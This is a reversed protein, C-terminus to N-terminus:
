EMLPVPINLWNLMEVYKEEFGGPTSGKKGRIGFRMDPGPAGVYDLVGIETGSNYFVNCKDGFRFCVGHTIKAVAESDVKRLYPVRRGSSGM